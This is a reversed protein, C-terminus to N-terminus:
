TLILQLLHLLGLLLKNPVLLLAVVYMILHLDANGFIFELNGVFSVLLYVCKFVKM